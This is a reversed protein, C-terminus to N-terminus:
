KQKNKTTHNIIFHNVTELFNCIRSSGFKIFFIVGNGLWIVVHYLLFTGCICYQLAFPLLSEWNKSTAVRRRADDPSAPTIQNILTRCITGGIIGFIPFSIGSFIEGNQM